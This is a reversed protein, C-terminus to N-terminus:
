RIILSNINLCSKQSYSAPNKHEAATHGQARAVYKDFRDTSRDSCIQLYFDIHIDHQLAFAWGVMLRLCAPGRAPTCLVTVKMIVCGRLNVYKCAGVYAVPIRVADRTLNTSVASNIIDDKNCYAHM